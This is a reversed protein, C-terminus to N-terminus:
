EFQDHMGVHLLHDFLITNDASYAVEAGVAQVLHDARQGHGGITAEREPAAECSDFGDLRRRGHVDQPEPEWFKRALRLNTAANKAANAAPSDKDHQFA